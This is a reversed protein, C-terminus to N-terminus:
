EVLTVKNRVRQWQAKCFRCSAMGHVDFLGIDGTVPHGVHTPTTAHPDELARLCLECLLRPKKSKAM